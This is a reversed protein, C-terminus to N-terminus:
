CECLKYLRDFVLEREWMRIAQGIKEMKKLQGFNKVLPLMTTKKISNLLARGCESFDLIRLYKPLTLEEREIRLYSHLLIRRLRAHTYRKTKVSDLLENLTCCEKAAAFIRNELGESVDVINMIEEPWSKLLGALIAAEVKQLIHTKAERYIEMCERPVLHEVSELGDARIMKRILSASAFDDQAVMDNHGVSNRKILIPEITSDLLTLAKLYEVGLINNPERLVKAYKSGLLEGVALERASAYTIGDSLKKRVIEDFKDNKKALFKAVVSIESIGEAEAGFALFDVCGLANILYVSTKAFTEATTTACVTPLEIVLDGGGAIASKARTFKDFIACDGRQVYNGSMVIVAADAGSLRKAEEIHFKHGNHFPNYEAIIGITKM